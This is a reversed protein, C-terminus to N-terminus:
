VSCNILFEKDKVNSKYLNANKGYFMYKEESQAASLTCCGLLGNINGTARSKIKKKKQTDDEMRGRHGGLKGAPIM